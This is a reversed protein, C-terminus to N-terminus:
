TRALRPINANMSAQAVQARGHAAAIGVVSAQLDNGRVQRDVVAPGGRHGATRLDM